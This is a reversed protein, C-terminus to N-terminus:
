NEAWYFTQQMAQSQAAKGAITVATGPPVIIKGDFAYRIIQAGSYTVAGFSALTPGKTLTSTFTAASYALANPTVSIGLQTPQATLATTTGLAAGGVQFYLSVDSVVTTANLIGLEYSILELFKTSTAPNFLTFTSVLGSAIVPIITGASATTVFFSTGLAASLWNDGHLKGLTNVNSSYGVAPFGPVFGAISGSM